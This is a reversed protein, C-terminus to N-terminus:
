SVNVVLWNGCINSCMSSELGGESLKNRVIKISEFSYQSVETCAKGLKLGLVVKRILIYCRIIDIAYKIKSRINKSRNYRDMIKKKNIIM